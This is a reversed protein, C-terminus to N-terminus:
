EADAPSDSIEEPAEEVERFQSMVGGLAATLEEPRRTSTIWYPTADRTDTIEIRVVPDIWGRINMFAIGNLGPGRQHYAASGRYGTVEGVFEREITARGVRVTDNTVEITPTNAIFAFVILAFVVLGGTIGWVAGVPFLAVGATAGLGLSVLWIAWNPRLKEHFLVPAPPAASSNESMGILM